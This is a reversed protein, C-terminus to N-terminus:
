NKFACKICMTNQRVVSCKYRCSWNEGSNCFIVSLHIYFFVSIHIYVLRFFTDYSVNTNNNISKKKTNKYTLYTYWWFWSRIKKLNIYRGTPVAKARFVDRLNRPPALSRGTRHLKVKVAWWWQTLGEFADKGNSTATPCSGGGTATGVNLARQLPSM